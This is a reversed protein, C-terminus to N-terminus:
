SNLTVFEPQDVKSRQFRCDEIIEECNAGVILLDLFDNIRIGLPLSARRM